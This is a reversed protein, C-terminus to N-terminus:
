ARGIGYREAYNECADEWRRMLEGAWDFEEDGPEGALLAPDAVVFVRFSGTTSDGEIAGYAARGEERGAPARPRAPGRMWPHRQASGQSGEERGEPASSPFNNSLLSISQKGKLLRSSTGLGGAWLTPYNGYGRSSYNSYGARPLHEKGSRGSLFAPRPAPSRWSRGQGTVFPLLRWASSALM